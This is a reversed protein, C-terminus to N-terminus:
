NERSVAERVYRVGDLELAIINEGAGREFQVPDPGTMPFATLGFLDEAAPVLRVRQDGFGLFLEEKELEITITQYKDDGSFKGTFERM